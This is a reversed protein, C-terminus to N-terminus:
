EGFFEYLASYRMRAVQGAHAEDCGDAPAVGGVTDVRRIFRTRTFASDGERTRIRLLLWPIAGATPAPAQAVVEGTIMTDDAYRWFPGAGHTGTQRGAADFLAAEPGRFVWAHRAGSPECAYIQVGDAALVLHRRQGEPAPVPQALAPATLLAAAFALLMRHM